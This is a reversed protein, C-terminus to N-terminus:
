IKYALKKYIKKGYKFMNENLDEFRDGERM